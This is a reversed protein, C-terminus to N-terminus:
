GTTESESAPRRHHTNDGYIKCFASLISYHTVLKIMNMPPTLNLVSKGQVRNTM